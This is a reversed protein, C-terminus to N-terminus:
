VSEIPCYFYNNEGYMFKYCCSEWYGYQNTQESICGSDILYTGITQQSPLTNCLDPNTESYCTASERCQLEEQDWYWGEQCCHMETLPHNEYRGYSCYQDFRLMITRQFFM